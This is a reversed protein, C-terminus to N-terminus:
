PRNERTQLKTDNNPQDSNPKETAVVPPPNQMAGRDVELEAYPIPNGRRAVEMSPAVVTEAPTTLPWHRGLTFALALATVCVAGLAFAWAPDAQRTPGATVDGPQEHNEAM